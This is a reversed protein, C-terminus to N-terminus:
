SEEPWLPRDPFLRDLRVRLDTSIEPALAEIVATQQRLTTVDPTTEEALTAQIESLADHLQEKEAADGRPYADIADHLGDFFQPLTALATPEEFVSTGRDLETRSAGTDQALAAAGATVNGRLYVGADDDYKEGSTETTDPVVDTKTVRDPTLDPM